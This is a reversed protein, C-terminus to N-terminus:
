VTLMFNLLLLLALIFPSIRVINQTVCFQRLNELGLALYSRTETLFYVCLGVYNINEIM